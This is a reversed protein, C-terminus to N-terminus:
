QSGGAAFDDVQLRTKEFQQPAIFGAV